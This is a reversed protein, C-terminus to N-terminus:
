DSLSFADPIHTIQAEDDSQCLIAIVDFRPQLRTSKNNQLYWHATRIIQRQKRVGVAEQPTGFATSRRTKVEIFLLWSKYRAIIDIEGVPTTFNREVIKIGQQRLYEAARDEGWAGLTLRAETM